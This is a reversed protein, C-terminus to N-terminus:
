LARSEEEAEQNPATSLARSEIATITAKLEQQIAARAPSLVMDGWVLGARRCTDKPYLEYISDANDNLNSVDELCSIHDPDVLLNMSGDKWGILQM